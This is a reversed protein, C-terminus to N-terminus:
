RTMRYTAPGVKKIASNKKGTTAFWIYINKNKAGIREAITRVTIGGKGASELQRIIKASLAGRPGQAGGKKRRHTSKAGSSKRAASARSTKATSRKSGKSALRYHGGSIKKIAPNRKTTSHFWSHINVPKTALEDALDKVYVGAAGARELANMIQEKLAGRPTRGRRRGRAPSPMTARSIAASARPVVDRFFSDKLSSILDVVNGLDKQLRERREELALM